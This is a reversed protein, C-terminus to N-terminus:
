FNVTSAVAEYDKKSDEPTAQFFIHMNKTLEQLMNFDKEDLTMNQYVAKRGPGAGLGGIQLNPIKFGEQWTKYTTTIDKFLVMAKGEGLHNENWSSVFHGVSVISCRVGAPTSMRYINGMTRDKALTDNVIIIKIAQIEKLWRAVVQGHILRFDVRVLALDAM